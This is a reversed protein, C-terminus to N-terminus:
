IEIQIEVRGVCCVVNRLSKFKDRLQQRTFSGGEEQPYMGLTRRSLSVAGNHHRCYCYLGVVDLTLDGNGPHSVSVVYVNAAWSSVARITIATECGGLGPAGGRNDGNHHHHDQHGQGGFLIPRDCPPRKPAVSLNSPPPSWPRTQVYVTASNNRSCTCCSRRKRCLSTTPGPDDSWMETSTCLLQHQRNNMAAQLLPRHFSTLVARPTPPPPPRLQPRQHDQSLAPRHVNSPRSISRWRSRNLSAVIWM